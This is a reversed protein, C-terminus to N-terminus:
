YYYLEFIGILLLQIYYKLYDENFNTAFERANFKNMGLYIADAGGVIAAKLNGLSGAPCLLEIKKMNHNKEM